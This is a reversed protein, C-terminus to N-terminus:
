VVSKRDKFPIGLFQSFSLLFHHNGAPHNCTIQRPAPFVRLATDPTTAPYPAELETWFPDDSTLGIAVLTKLTWYVSQPSNYDETLYM